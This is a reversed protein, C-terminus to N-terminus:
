CNVDSESEMLSTQIPTVSFSHAVSSKQMVSARQSMSFRHTISSLRTRSSRTTSSRSMSARQTMSSRTSSRKSLRKGLERNSSAREKGAKQLNSIHNKRQHLYEAAAGQAREDLEQELHVAHTNTRPLARMKKDITVQQAYKSSSEKQALAPLMGVPEEKGEKEMEDQGATLSLQNGETEAGNRRFEDRFRAAAITTLIKEEMAVLSADRADHDVVVQPTQRGPTKYVNVHFTYQKDGEHNYTPKPPTQARSDWLIEGKGVRRYNGISLDSVGPMRNVTRRDITGQQNVTKRQHIEDYLDRKYNNWKRKQKLRQMLREDTLRMKYDCFLKHLIKKSVNRILDYKTVVYVEACPNAVVSSQYAFGEIMEMVGFSMGPRLVDVVVMNEASGGIGVAAAVAAAANEAAATNGVSAGTKQPCEPRQDDGENYTSMLKRLAQRGGLGLDLALAEDVGETPFSGCKPLLPTPEEGDAFPNPPPKGQESNADFAKKFRPHLQRIVKCFGSKVFIIRDVENGQTLITHDGLHSEHRLHGAMARLDVESIDELVSRDVSRLYNVRDTVFNGQAMGVGWEYDAQTLVLLRTRKVATVRAARIKNESILALEGFARGPDLRTLPVLEVHESRQRQASEHHRPIEISVRGTWILYLKDGFEGYNFVRDGTGFEELTFKSCLAKKIPDSLMMIFEDRMNTLADFILTLDRDSRKDGDRMLARYMREDRKSQDDSVDEDSFIDLDTQATQWVQHGSASEAQGDATAQLPHGDTGDSQM